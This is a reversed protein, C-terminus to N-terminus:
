DTPRCEDDNERAFSLEGSGGCASCSGVDPPGSSPMGSGQCTPCTPNLCAECRGEDLEDHKFVEHCGECAENICGECRKGEDLLDERDVPDGCNMCQVVASM